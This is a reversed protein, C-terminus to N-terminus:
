MVSVASSPPRNSNCCKQQFRCISTSFARGSGSKLYHEFDIAKQDDSFALYTRLKWPRYKSTHSVEGHNHRALRDKLDKTRGFYFRGSENELIYVYHM